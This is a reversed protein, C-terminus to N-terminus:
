MSALSCPPEACNEGKDKRLFDINKGADYADSCEDQLVKVACDSSNL